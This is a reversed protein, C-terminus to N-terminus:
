LNKLDRMADLYEKSRNLYFALGRSFNQGIFGNVFLLSITKQWELIEQSKFFITREEESLSAVLQRIASRARPQYMWFYLMDLSSILIIKGLDLAEANQTSRVDKPSKLLELPKKDPFMMELSSYVNFLQRLRDQYDNLRVKINHYRDATGEIMGAVTDSAAKSIIAASKQLIVEVNAIGIMGFIAEAGFSYVIALPISLISRFFNGIIAGKPLGRFANHSSLYLGNALAMISYLEYPHNATTINMTEQLLLTKVVYDLLPVSFGTYLLSDTLRDWSVYDNWRLLPSRKFGGGGLVSQIINRFGTIGFWIFAGLYALVWWNNTLAFTAFAPIFGILVKLTNKIKTNLYRFSQRPKLRDELTSAKQEAGNTDQNIGGLTVINGQPSMTPFEHVVWDTERKYGIKSFLSNKRTHELHSKKSSHTTSYPILTTRKFAEMRVPIIVRQGNKEKRIEQQARKPLTEIIAFGMGQIRRSRGVSDSGIRAKLPTYQYMSKLSDIDHLIATLKGIRGQCNKEKDPDAQELHEIMNRIMRKLAIVNGDNLATQLEIIDNIHKSGEIANNKLNFIELRTITGECNYLLELVDEASLGRLNLTIRYASHLQILLGIIEQPPMKLLEPLDAHSQPFESYMTDPNEPTLYKELITEECLKELSESQKDNEMEAPCIESSQFPHISQIKQYILMALHFSSAQGAGVFKLFEEKSIPELKLDYQQNITHLHNINFSNLLEIVCNKQYNSVE